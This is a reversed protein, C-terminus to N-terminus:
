NDKKETETMPRIFSRRETPKEEPQSPAVPVAGTVPVYSPTMPVDRIRKNGQSVGEPGSSPTGPDRAVAGQPLNANIEPQTAAGPVVVNRPAPPASTVVGSPLRNGPTLTGPQEYYTPTGTKGSIQADGPYVTVPAPRGAAGYSGDDLPNVTTRTDLVSRTVTPADATEYVTVVPRVIAFLWFVERSRNRSGIAFAGFPGNRSDSSLDRRIGGLIATQGASLRLISNIGQERTRPQTLTGLQAGANLQVFEVLDVLKVGVDLTVIGSSADYRPDFNLTLGTGLQATQSSGLAGGGIGGSLTAGVNQVYPINEGSRLIVPAGSLTRLEVNQAVSTDGMRSLFKIAGAVSVIKGTGFLDGFNGKFANNNLTFVGNGLATDASVTGGPTQPTGTVNSGYGFNLSSWDFGAEANKTMNVTVLAVQLTVESLNGQLRRLYPELMEGNTRPSASYFIQGAGVSGVVNKAGLRKLENVISQVIDQNQMVSVAYRRVDGVVLSGDYWVAIDGSNEMRRMLEAVSGKFHRFPLPRDYFAPVQRQEKKNYIEVAGNENARIGSEESEQRMGNINQQTNQNIVTGDGNGGEEAAGKVTVNPNSGGSGGNNGGFGGNGGFNGNGGFGGISNGGGIGGLGGNNQQVGTGGKVSNAIDQYKSAATFSGVDSKGSGEQLSAWDITMPVGQIDLLTQLDALTPVDSRIDITVQKNLLSAPVDSDQPRSIFLGGPVRVRQVAPRGAFAADYERETQGFSVPDKVTDLRAGGTTSACGALSISLLSAAALSAAHRM